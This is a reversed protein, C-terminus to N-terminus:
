KVLWSLFEFDPENLDLPGRVDQQNATREGYFDPTVGEDKKVSILLTFADTKWYLDISGDACPNIRPAPLSQRSTEYLSRAAKRLLNVASSWTQEQIQLAGEDDWNDPLQMMSRSDAIAREIEPFHADESPLRSTSSIFDCQQLTSDAAAFVSGRGRYTRPWRTPERSVPRWDDLHLHRQQKQMPSFDRISKSSCHFKRLQM